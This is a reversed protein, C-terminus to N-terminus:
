LNPDFRWLESVLLGGLWKREHVLSWNSQSLAVRYNPLQRIGLNTLLGFARYLASILLRAIVQEYFNSPIAFESIVWVVDTGVHNRLRYALNRVEAETLCDLFFHTAILDYNYRLPRFTRADAIHIRVRHAPTRTALQRLMSESADITDVMVTTNARLLRATFRGDGDGLVLANRSQGFRSLFACRCRQLFPGFTLWEMWRYVRAIHNFDPAASSPAKEHLEIETAFNTM